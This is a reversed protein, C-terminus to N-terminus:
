SNILLTFDPSVKYIECVAKYIFSDEGAHKNIRWYSFNDYPNNYWKNPYNDPALIIATGDISNATGSKISIPLKHISYLKTIKSSYYEVIQKLTEIPFELRQSVKIDQRPLLKVIDIYDDRTLETKEVILYGYYHEYFYEISYRKLVDFLCLFEKGRVSSIFNTKYITFKNNEFFAKPYESMEYNRNYLQQYFKIMAWHEPINDINKYCFTFSLYKSKEKYIYSTNNETVYVKNRSIIHSFKCLSCNSIALLKQIEEETIDTSYDFIIVTDPAYREIYVKAKKVKLIEYFPEAIELIQKHKLITYKNGFTENEFVPPYHKDAFKPETEIDYRFLFNDQFTKTFNDININLTLPSVFDEFCSWKRQLIPHCMSLIVDNEEFNTVNRFFKIMLYEEIEYEGEINGDICLPPLAIFYDTYKYREFIYVLPDVSELVFNGNISPTNPIHHLKKESIVRYCQEVWAYVFHKYFDSSTKISRQLILSMFYCFYIVCFYKDFLQPMYMPYKPKQIYTSAHLTIMCAPLLWIHKYNPFSFSYHQIGFYDIISLIDTFTTSKTSPYYKWYFNSFNVRQNTFLMNYSWANDFIINRSYVIDYPTGKNMFLENHIFLTDRSVVDHIHSSYMDYYQTPVSIYSQYLKNFIFYSQSNLNYKQELKYMMREYVGCLFPKNKALYTFTERIAMYFEDSFVEFAIEYGEEMEEIEMIIVENRVIKCSTTKSEIVSLIRNRFALSHTRSRQPFALPHCEFSKQTKISVIDTIEVTPMSSAFQFLKLIDQSVKTYVTIETGTSSENSFYIRNNVIRYTIKSTIKIEINPDSLRLFKWNGTIAFQICSIVTDNANKYHIMKNIDDYNRDGIYLDNIDHVSVDHVIPVDPLYKSICDPAKIYAHFPISM